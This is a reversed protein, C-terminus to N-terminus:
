LKKTIKPSLQMAIKKNGKIKRVWTTKPFRKHGSETERQLYMEKVKKRTKENGFDIRNRAFFKKGFSLGTVSLEAKKNKTEFMSRIM